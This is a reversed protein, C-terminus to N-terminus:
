RPLIVTEIVHIVCWAFPEIGAVFEPGEHRRSGPPQVVPAGVTVRRRSLRGSGGPEARVDM